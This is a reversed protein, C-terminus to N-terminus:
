DSNVIFSVTKKENSYIGFDIYYQGDGEYFVYLYRDCSADPRMNLTTKVADDFYGYANTIQVGEPGFFKIEPPYSDYESINKLHIGIKIVLKGGDRLHREDIKTFSAEQSLTIELGKFTFTDGLAYYGDVNTTRLQPINPSQEDVVEEPPYELGFERNEGQIIDPSPTPIATPQQSVPTQVVSQPTPTSLPTAAVQMYNSESTSTPTSNIVTNSPSWVTAIASFISVFINWLNNM